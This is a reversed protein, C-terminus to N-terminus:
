RFQLLVFIVTLAHFYMSICYLGSFQYSLLKFTSLISCFVFIESAVRFTSVAAAERESFIEVLIFLIYELNFSIVTYDLTISYKFKTDLHKHHHFRNWSLGSHSNWAVDSISPLSQQQQPSNTSNNNNNNASSNNNNNQRTRMVSEAPTCHPRPGPEPTYTFTLGTAYIIGDNRVLSIPM